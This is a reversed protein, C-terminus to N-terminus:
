AVQDYTLKSSLFLEIMLKKDDDSRLQNIGKLFFFNNIVGISLGTAKSIAKKSIERERYIGIFPQLLYEKEAMKM